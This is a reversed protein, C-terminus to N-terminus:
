PNPFPPPTPPPPPRYEEMEETDPNNPKTERVPGTPSDRYSVHDLSANEWAKLDDFDRGYSPDYIRGAVKVLAHNTFRNQPTANGQAENTAKVELGKVAYSRFPKPVIDYTSASIGQARLVDIFFLQWGGCRADRNTIVSASTFCPLVERPPPSGENPRAKCTIGWYQLPMTENVDDARYLRRDTFESWIRSIIETPTDKKVGKLNKTAIHVTSHFPQLPKSLTVYAQNRSTGAESWTQGDDLSVEWKLNMSEFYDITDKTFVTKAATGGLEIKKNKSDLKAPTSEIDYAANGEFSVRVKVKNSPTIDTNVSFKAKAKLKKDDEYAVPEGKFNPDPQAPAIWHPSSFSGSDDDKRLAYNSEFSVEDLKVTPTSVQAEVDIKTQMPPDLPTNGRARLLIETAHHWDARPTLTLARYGNANGLVDDIHKGELDPNGAIVFHGLVTFEAQPPPPPPAHWAGVRIGSGPDSTIKRADASVSGTGVQVYRGADHDFSMLLVQSNPPLRDLNPFSIELPQDFLAGSPQVSIYLSTARGDELPMPVRGAPIRTVSLRKDTVDPPFTVHTGARAVVRIPEQGGVVPLEFVTDQTVVNNANLPMTVGENVKPLFLPRGLNNDIGPLIDIDYSINPWRGPLPIQDRGILELLQHPGVAVNLVQFRGDSGTRAQQGGVRVLVNPLARLNMDRVVGSVSTPQNPSAELAEGAFTSPSFQNGTFNARILQLGSASGSIYHARAYGDADTQLLLTDNGAVFRGGGQVVRFEVTVNQAPAGFQDKVVAVLPRPFETNVLGRQGDGTSINVHAPQGAPPLSMNPDRLISIQATSSTNGEADVAVVALATNGIQLNVNALFLGTGIAAQTTIQEPGGTINITAGPEARGEVTQFALRTPSLVPFVTPVAPPTLDKGRLNLEAEATNGAIDTAILNLVNEGEAIAVDNFSFRGDAGVTATLVGLQVTVTTVDAVSGTVTATHGNILTGDVPTLETIVPATADATVTRVVESQNGAADTAIVRVQNVGEILTYEGGFAGDAVFFPQGNISVTVSTVDTVTGSVTISTSNTILGNAPQVLDLVAAANDRTVLSSSETQNGAADTAIVVLTNPGDNLPVTATFGTGNIIANIGNVTISTQSADSYNGTVLIEQNQTAHEPAPQELTILPAITDRFVRRAVETRNGAVDTAAILLDNQGEALPLTATFSNGQLSAPVGNVTITTPSEDSFTGTVNVETASNTSNDAPQQVTLVPPTTDSTNQTTANFRSSRAVADFYLRLGVASNHGGCSGGSADTGVRTLVKLNLVDSTGNFTVASFSDFLLTVEKANAANRTIGTICLSQGSAVLTSNKYAEVRLDFNTGQDDSNKLGLWVHLDSLSVLSGSTMEPAAPWTGVEKWPNGGSRSVSLSDKFKETSAIPVITNLFLTPPNNAAGTGHLYLTTQSQVPIAPVLPPASLAWSMSKSLTTAWPWILLSGVVALFLAVSCALLSSRINPSPKKM